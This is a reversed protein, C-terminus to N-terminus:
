LLQNLLSSGGNLPLISLCLTVYPRSKMFISKVAIHVRMLTYRVSKRIKRGLGALCTLQNATSHQVFIVSNSHALQRFCELEVPKTVKQGQFASDKDTGDM